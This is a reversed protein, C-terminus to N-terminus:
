QFSFENKRRTLGLPTEVGWPANKPSKITQKYHILDLNDIGIIVAVNNRELEPFNIHTLHDYNKCLTNLQAVNVASMNLDPVTM